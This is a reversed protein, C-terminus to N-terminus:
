IQWQMHELINGLKEENIVWMVCRKAYLIQLRTNETSLLLKILWGNEYLTLGIEQNM